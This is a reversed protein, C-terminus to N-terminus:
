GLTVRSPARYFLIMPTGIVAAQLTSTGSKVLLLDSAAMVESSQDRVIRIPAPSDRILEDLGGDSYRNRNM